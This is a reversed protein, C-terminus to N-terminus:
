ESVSDTRTVVQSVLGDKELTLLLATLDARIRQEGADPFAAAFLSCLEGLTRPTELVRWIASAMANLAHISGEDPAALFIEGGVTRAVAHDSRRWLRDLDPADQGHATM